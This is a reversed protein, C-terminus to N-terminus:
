TFRVSSSPDLMQQAQMLHQTLEPQGMPKMRPAHEARKYHLKKSLVLDSKFM